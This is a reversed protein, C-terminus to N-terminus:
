GGTQARSPRRPVAPCTREILVRGEGLEFLLDFVEEPDFRRIITREIPGEPRRGEPIKALTEDDLERLVKERAFYAGIRKRESMEDWSVGSSFLMGKMEESNKGHLQKASFYAQALAAVSNRLADQQRWLFYNKAEEISPVSFARADFLAGSLDSKAGFFHTCASALVSILKYPKGEHWIQSRYDEGRWLMLSIEDSYTHVLRAGSLKLLHSATRDFLDMLGGDFPKECGAKRTWASFNKGDLRVLVPLGPLFWQQQREEHQKMRDALGTM